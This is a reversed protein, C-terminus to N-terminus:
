SKSRFVSDMLVDDPTTPIDAVLQCAFCVGSKKIDKSSTMNKTADTLRSFYIDYFGKGRGLRRGDKTFARGPVLILIQQPVQAPTKLFKIFNQTEDPEPESIGYSGTDTRSGTTFRYFEMQNTGPTIRPLYVSKNHALADSIVLTIDAEDPLPMYALLITCNQYDKSNIITRCIKESEAKLQHKSISALKEKIQNRITQKSM